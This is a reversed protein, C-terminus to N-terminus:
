DPCPKDKEGNPALRRATIGDAKWNDLSRASGRATKGRAVTLAIKGLEGFILANNGCTCGTVMLIGDTFCHNCGVSAVVVERGTHRRNLAAMANRDAKVGLSVFPCM